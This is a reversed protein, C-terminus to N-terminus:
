KPNLLSIIIKFVIWCIPTLFFVILTTLMVIGMLKLRKRAENSIDVGCKNCFRDNYSCSHLRKVCKVLM